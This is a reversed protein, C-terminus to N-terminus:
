NMVFTPPINKTGQEPYQQDKIDTFLTRLKRIKDQGEMYHRENELKKKRTGLIHKRVYAVLIVVTQTM